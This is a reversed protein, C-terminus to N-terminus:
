RYPCSVGASALTTAGGPVKALNDRRGPVLYGWGHRESFHLPFGDWTLAMLKPTIRMQLSLLSPGPTWAPDDLRPCLKRYWRHGSLLSSHRLPLTLVTHSQLAPERGWLTSWGVELAGLNEEPSRPRWDGDEGEPHPWAGLLTGSFLEFIESPFLRPQDLALGWAHSLAPKRGLSWKM